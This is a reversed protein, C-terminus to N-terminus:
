QAPMVFLDTTLDADLTITRLYQKTGADYLDITNGAQYIYLLEGSTSTALAMRPRGRFPTRDTVRRQELDITWFEYRHVSQFLGYATKRDPALTFGISEAPGLTHFDIDRENLNVRAVGMMRRGQVPDTMQFLGTFFGPEENFDDRSGLSIPGLGPEIPASLEWRGVETFGRTEYVIIDDGMFYLHEGDPSFVMSVRDQEEDDPWPITRSIAHTGLDVQVLSAPEIEFRDILKVVPRILFIAYRDLPDVAVGRIRVRRNGESLTFSDLTSRSAIDVTEFAELMTNLSYFRKRDQSLALSRSMGTRLPIEGVMRETAEDIIMITNAYGGAYITGNGGRATTQAHGSLGWVVLAAILAVGHAVAGPTVGGRALRVTSGQFGPAM